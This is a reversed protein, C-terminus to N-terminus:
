RQEESCASDSYALTLPARKNLTACRLAAQLMSPSAICREFWARSLCKAPMEGSPLLMMFLLGQHEAIDQYASRLVAWAQEISLDDLWPKGEIRLAYSHTAPM